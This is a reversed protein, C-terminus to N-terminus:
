SLSIERSFVETLNYGDWIHSFTLAQGVPVIRDLARGRLKLAFEKIENQQFGYYTLTQDTESFNHVLDDLSKTFFEYLFGNGM